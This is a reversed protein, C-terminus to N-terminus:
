QRRQRWRALAALAAAAFFWHSPAGGGGGGGGGSSPPPAPTNVTLTATNSTVSGVSNTVTVTYNGANSTQAGTISFTTDTAGAIASGNKNWQYTPNPKGTAVVSLVVNAGVTVSQSQPQTTITPASDPIIPTLTFTLNISSGWEGDWGDVAFYYTTGATVPVTVISTRNRTQSSNQSPPEVDDNAAVQTLSNVASGTYAALVTDFNTGATKVELSGSFTATWKWWVSAGGAESAHNPEGTEKGASVSSGTLTVTNSAPITVATANAFLDNAPGVSVGPVGYLYQAGDLDDRAVTDLDSVHSNMVATVTQGYEDPHDLGLVHGLEHIAVRRLDIVGSQRGGRYSNWTYATNFIVDSQSRRYTGDLSPVSSRYSMTIALVNTEFATGYVDSAFFLENIGNKDAGAGATAITPSFQVRRLQANWIDMAAQAATSYNSGDQLTPSTGLKIQVPISGDPWKIVVASGNADARIIEYAGACVGFALAAVPFAARLFKNQM